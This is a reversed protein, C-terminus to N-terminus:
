RRSRRKPRKNPPIVVVPCTAKQLVLHTTSGIILDYIATHGHSGLVIYDAKRAKAEELIVASPVGMDQVVDVALAGSRLSQKLKGLRTSASLEAAAVIQSVNDMIPGYESTLVPPAVVHLLVLKAKQRGVLAVAADIVPHTASSFDIPVLVTTM